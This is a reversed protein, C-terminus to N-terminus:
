KIFLLTTELGVGLVVLSLRLGTSWDELSVGLLVLIIGVLFLGMRLVWRLTERVIAPWDDHRTASYVLSILVLLLPLEVYLSLTAFPLASM